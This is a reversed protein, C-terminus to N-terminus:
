ETQEEKNKIKKDATAIGLLVSEFLLLSNFIEVAQSNCKEAIVIYGGIILIFLFTIMIIVSKRSYKGRQKLLDNLM